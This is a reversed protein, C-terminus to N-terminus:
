NSARMRSKQMRASLSSVKLFIGEYFGCCRTVMDATRVRHIRHTDGRDVGCGVPPPADGPPGNGQPPAPLAVPLWSIYIYTYLVCVYM